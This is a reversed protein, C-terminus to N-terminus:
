NSFYNLFEKFGDGNAENLMKGFDIIDPVDKLEAKERCYLSKQHKCLQQKSSLCAGCIDCVCPTNKVFQQYYKKHYDPDLSNKNYTGDENYREPKLITGKKRGPKSRIFPLESDPKFVIKNYKPEKIKIVKPPKPEKVKVVKEKKPKPTYKPKKEAEPKRPRGRPRKIVEIQEESTESIVVIENIETM